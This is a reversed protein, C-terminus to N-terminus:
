FEIFISINKYSNIIYSLINKISHFYTFTWAELHKNKNKIVYILVIKLIRM